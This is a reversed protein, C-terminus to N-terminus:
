SASRIHTWDLGYSLVEGLSFLVAGWKQPATLNGSVDQFHLRPSEFGPGLSFEGCSRRAYGM